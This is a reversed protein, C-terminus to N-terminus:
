GLWPAVEVIRAWSLIWGLTALGLLLTPPPSPAGRLVARAAFLLLYVVAAAVVLLLGAQWGLFAGVCAGAFVIGPQRKKPCFRAALLAALFGAALGATGDILGAARDPLDDWAHVPHLHPWFLPCLLGAVLAPLVLRAPVRHDNAEILAACLLTCLLLLHYAYLGYLEMMTRVGNGSVPPLNEGGHFVEVVALLLFLSASFAEVLPYRVPIPSRCDRCQGRLIIWGLVPVNDRWRIPKKCVPCHSAPWALNLGAPLRYIVVNLFSGVIGGLAFLWVAMIVNVTEPPLVALLM